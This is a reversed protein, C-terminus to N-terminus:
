QLRNKPYSIYHIAKSKEHAHRDIEALTQIRNQLIELENSSIIYKYENRYVHESNM